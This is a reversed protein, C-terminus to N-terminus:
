TNDQTNGQAANQQQEACYKQWKPEISRMWNIHPIGTRTPKPRRAKLIDARQTWIEFASQFQPQEQTQKRATTDADLIKDVNITDCIDAVHAARKRPQEGLAKQIEAAILKQVEDFTFTRNPTHRQVTPDRGELIIQLAFKTSEQIDTSMDCCAVYQSLRIEGINVYYPEDPTTRKRAWRFLPEGPYRHTEVRVERVDRFRQALNAGIARMVAEMKSRGGTSRVVLKNTINDTPRSLGSPFPTRELTEDQSLISFTSM